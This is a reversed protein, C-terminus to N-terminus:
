PENRLLSGFTLYVAEHGGEAFGYGLFVPGLPTKLGIFASGGFSLSDLRVDSKDRWTNGGELSAGIYFPTSFLSDLRGTRRYVVARGFAAQNGFFSREAFGSLNLFGGLFSLSEVFKANDTASMLRTGLLLHYRDTLGGLDPVYDAVLRAVDGTENGGLVPRFISYNLDVHSGRTPFQADDLSDWSIGGRLMAYDERGVPFATPDGVRLRADDHGRELAAYLLWYSTPTWGGEIGINRRKIRYEALQQEADTDFVPADENRVLLYPMVYGTSGVGFPQHFESYLGGIRGAWITNRWEAGFRNINSATIEASVLYESRGQFDDDLQFGFRGFVPGWPKDVPIIELGKEGNRDVIHYDIQQYNGRGYLEGISHELKGADLPKGIEPELTKAIYEPTKTRTGDVDLFAVLAPDFDRQRHSAEFAAWEADSASLARLRDVATEAAARGIAIAERCQNFDASSIRGLNPQILIDRPTLTALQASVRANTLAGVMQNLLAVPNSLEAEEALPTGVDVVILRTAGMARAVDIPVNNMVGGDVLLKGDVSTPAFAGPVSMSARIALPLDGKGFIVERGAVIDTAIARFPIPLRDFDDIDWTSALLRRLLLLLKQGQVVGVPTIIRGNKWGIEFNLLYRYDAQKRRMPMDVRVPDDSFLDGWDLEGVVENMEDPSYGAAYLGGVISGMSTGAVRCIPIHERELVELVGIHAAGRAGGGGLVLGICPTAAPEAHAAFGALALGFTAFMGVRIARM